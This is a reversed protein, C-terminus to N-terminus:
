LQKIKENCIVRVSHNHWNAYNAPLITSRILYIYIQMKIVLASIMWRTINPLVLLMSFLFGNANICLLFLLKSLVGKAKKSKNYVSQAKLGAM